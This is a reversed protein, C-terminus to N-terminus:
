GPRAYRKRQEAVQARAREMEEVETARLLADIVRSLHDRMASRAADPDRKRLAKLIATHEDIRPKVGSARVKTSLSRNQPSRMRADWLTSVASIM